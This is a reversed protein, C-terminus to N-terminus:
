QNMADEYLLTSTNCQPIPPALSKSGVKDVFKEGLNATYFSKLPPSNRCSLESRRIRYYLQQLVSHELVKKAISGLKEVRSLFNLLTVPSIFM